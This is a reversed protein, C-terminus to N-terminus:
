CLKGSPINGWCNNLIAKKGVTFNVNCFKLDQPSKVVMSNKRGGRNSEIDDVKTVGLYGM